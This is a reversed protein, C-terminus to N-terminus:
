KHSLYEDEIKKLTNTFLHTNISFIKKAGSKSKTPALVAQKSDPFIFINKHGFNIGIAQQVLNIWNFSLVVTNPPSFIANHLASAYEGV